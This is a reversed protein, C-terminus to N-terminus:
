KGPEMVFVLGPRDSQLRGLKPLSSAPRYGAMGVELNLLEGPVNPLDFRGDPPLDIVSFNWANERFLLLRSGVPLTQANAVRVEGAVRWGPELNIAGMDTRSGDRGVRIVRAPLAGIGRLSDLLGYFQYDRNAPLHPFVFVGNTDTGVVFEGTFNGASRDVSTVGVNIGKVPKGDRVVHGVLAAGVPLVFDRRSRGLPVRTLTTRAVSPADVQLDVADCDKAIYVEFEGSADSVAVADTGDPMRGWTGGSGTRFGTIGVEAGAVPRKDADLLRGFVTRQPPLQDKTRPKLRVILPGQLPDVKALSVPEFGRAGVIM